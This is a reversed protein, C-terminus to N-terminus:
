YALSVNLRPCLYTLPQIIRQYPERDRSADMWSHHKWEWWRALLFPGPQDPFLDGRFLAILGATILTSFGFIVRNVMLRYKPMRDDPLWDPQMRELYFESQNHQTMHKALWVLWYITQEPSYRSAPGRRKLAVEVYKEFILRRRTDKDQVSMIEDIPTVRFTQAMIHLM